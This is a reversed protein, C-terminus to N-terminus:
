RSYTLGILLDINTLIFSIMTSDTKGTPLAVLTNRFLCSKVITFQYSREEFNVPYIWTRGAESDFGPLDKLDESQSSEFEARSLELARLLLEDDNEDDLNAQNNFDTTSNTTSTM